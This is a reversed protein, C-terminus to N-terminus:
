IGGKGFEGTFMLCWSCSDSRFYRGRWEAMIVLVGPFHYLLGPAV